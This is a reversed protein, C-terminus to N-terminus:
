WLRIGIIETNMSPTETFLDLQFGTCGLISQRSGGVPTLARFLILVNPSLHPMDGKARSVM